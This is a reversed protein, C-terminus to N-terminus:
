KLKETFHGGSRLTTNLRASKQMRAPASITAIVPSPASPHSRRLAGASLIPCSFPVSVPPASFSYLSSPNGCLSPIMHSGEPRCFSFYFSLAQCIRSFDQM